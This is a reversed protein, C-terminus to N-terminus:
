KMGADHSNTRKGDLFLRKPQITGLTGGTAFESYFCRTKTDARVFGRTGLFKLAEFVATLEPTNNSHRTAGYYAVHTETTIVPGHM